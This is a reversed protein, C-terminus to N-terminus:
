SRSLGLAAIIAKQTNNLSSLNVGFGFPTARRRLKRESTLVISPPGGYYTIGSRLGIDGIFTYTDRVISHEMIYGYKLVLGYQSMADANHIIDGASSFWDTAWSWPAISWVTEPTLDLGLVSRAKTLVGGYKPTVFNSPLHYTFSGSFWRRVTTERSRIVRGYHGPVLQGNNYCFQLAVFGPGGTFTQEIMTTDANSVEPSFSMRRRVGKGNDRMLQSYLKDFRMIGSAFDTLDNVLPKWGFELNLYEDGADKAHLTRKEWLSSGIKHPLGDKLTELLAVSANAVPNTPATLAIAKTGWYNLEIDSSSAYPPFTWSHNWPILLPGSYTYRSERGSSGYYFDGDEWPWQITVNRQKPSDAWQKSMTFNGGVDGEHSEDFFTKHNESETEQTGQLREWFLPDSWTRWPNPIPTVASGDAKRRVELRGLAKTPGGYPISRRKKSSV